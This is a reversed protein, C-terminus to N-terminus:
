LGRVQGLAAGRSSYLKLFHIPFELSAEM